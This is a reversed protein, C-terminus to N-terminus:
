TVATNTVWRLEHIGGFLDVINKKKSHMALGNIKDKLYKRKKGLIDAPKV